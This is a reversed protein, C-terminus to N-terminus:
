NVESDNLTYNEKIKNFVGTRITVTGYVPEERNTLKFLVVLRMEFADNHVFEQSILNFGTPDLAKVFDPALDTYKSYRIFNEGSIVPVSNM